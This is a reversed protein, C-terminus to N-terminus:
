GRYRPMGPPPALVEDRGEAAIAKALRHRRLLILGLAASLVFLAVGVAIQVAGDVRVGKGLLSFVVTQPVYGLASAAFFPLAPIGSLGALLNLALNNGVPLLRLTLTATFPNEALFRDLRAIGGSLRRRAWERGIARAYFFSAAAGILMALLALQAGLFAGFATGGAFAVAQRPVGVACAIAGIAVFTLERPLGWVGLVRDLVGPSLLGQAQGERLILGAAVLGAALLVPKWLRLLIARM